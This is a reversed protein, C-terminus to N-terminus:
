TRLLYFSEVIQQLDRLTGNNDITHTVLKTFEVSNQEVESSHQSGKGPLASVDPRYIRWLQGKAKNIVCAENLFRIDTIVVTNWGNALYGEARKVGYTVWIDTFIRRGYETGLTQLVLRPSIEKQELIGQLWLQLASKTYEENYTANPLVKNRWDYSYTNFNEVVKLREKHSNGFPWYWHPKTFRVDPANRAASPGWLQEQSFEFVDRAFEKIPDALGLTVLKSDQQRLMEAVTDKGSGAAGTIGILNM